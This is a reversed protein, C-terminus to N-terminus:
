CVVNMIALYKCIYMNCVYESICPAYQVVFKSVVECTSMRGSNEEVQVNLKGVM